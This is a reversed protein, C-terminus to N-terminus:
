SPWLVVGSSGLEVEIGYLGKIENGEGDNSLRVMGELGCYRTVVTRLVDRNTIVKGSKSKPKRKLITVLTEDVEKDLGDDKINELLTLILEKLNFVTNDKKIFM